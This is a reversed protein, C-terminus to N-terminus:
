NEYTIWLINVNQPMLFNSNQKFNRLNKWQIKENKQVAFVHIASTRRTFWLTKARELLDDIFKQFYVFTSDVRSHFILPIKSWKCKHNRQFVQIWQPYGSFYILSLEEIWATKVSQKSSYVEKKPKWRWYGINWRSWHWCWKPVWDAVFFIFLFFFIETKLFRWFSLNKM